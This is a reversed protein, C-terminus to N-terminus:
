KKAGSVGPPVVSDMSLKSYADTNKLMNAFSTLAQTSFAGITVDKREGSQSMAYSVLDEKRVKGDTGQLRRKLDVPNLGASKAYDNVM